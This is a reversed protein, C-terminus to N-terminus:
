EEVTLTGTMTSPHVDCRFFYEGPEDPATFEYTTTSPGTIIEGVSIGNAAAPTDYLAFNHPTGSDQNDFSLAVSAGAPVTITGTGFSLNRAVLEVVVDEQQGGDGGQDPMVTAATDEVVPPELPTHDNNVLQVYFTHEGPELDEWAHSTRASAAYTGQATVAPEGPATPPEADLYYHIHGEGERPPDGLKQVIDFNAVSVRVTADGSIGTGADVDVGQISVSPAPAQTCGALELSVLGLASVLLALRSVKGKM